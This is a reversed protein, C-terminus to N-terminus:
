KTIVVKQKSMENNNYGIIFYVGSNLNEINMTYKNNNNLTFQQITQGLENVISYTSERTSKITIMNNGPNPYVVFRSNKEITGIATSNINVCASTDTCGNLTIIVAYDGNTIATYNQNTEGSIASYSNNCDLWQYVAGSQNATVTSGNLSTTANPQPNITVTVSTTDSCNLGSTGVIYYTASSASTPTAYPMTAGANTFYSYTLGPTSGATVAPLTLDVYGPACATQPSTVLTPSSNITLNLTMVSDCGSTNPITDMYIGSITYTNSQWVYSGCASATTSSFTNSCALYRVVAIDNSSGNHYFGAVVIKGDPQIAVSTGYDQDSGIATTVKGDNDFNTDLSGNTNYRVVAFDYNLGNHSDGAVVIKGDPQITVSYGGDVSSGIDTTVIGDNDFTTDFNGDTNYRVVAIDFNSGNYSNGAIVIKGNLQITVSFVESVNGIVTTVIGDNDFTTDLSGNTNYRVVIGPGNYTYGAVVIKGDAQITVSKALDDGSGIVTIIIGNNDFTSDLGGDTNYRVVAFDYNSGNYSGGAVVIKGDSQLAISRGADITGVGIDTTVIGDNDFTTDLSGDTNYRVVAFDYNSGNHSYGAALIKGDSQIAVSYAKDDTSGIDTTVIGDSDFTTDLSGDTNYRVVLFDDSSGIYEYWAVVIKGDPQIAMSPNDVTGNGIATTVIGDGDFTSDLSGAQSFGSNNLLLLFSLPTFIKKM